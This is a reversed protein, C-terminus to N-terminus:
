NSINYMCRAQAKESFHFCDPALFGFDIKGSPTRPISYNMTFLHPIVTFDDLDFEAMNSVELDIQQWKVMIDSLIKRKSAFSLGKICPCLVNQLVYCEIPVYNM